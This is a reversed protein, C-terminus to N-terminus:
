VFPLEKSAAGIIEIMENSIWEDINFDRWRSIRSARGICWRNKWYEVLEDMNYDYYVPCSNNDICERLNKVLPIIFVQKKISGDTVGKIGIFDLAKRLKGVREISTMDDSDLRNGTCLEYFKYLMSKVDFPLYHASFGKTYGVPIAVVHDNYKLRNYISSRGFVSINTIFLIDDNYKSNYYRRIKDSLLSLTVMKAGILDNYPPMAGIRFADLSKNLIYTFDPRNYIGLYKNRASVNILPSFLGIIGFLSDHYRDWIVFRLSKGVSKQYPSSWWMLNWWKFLKEYKDDLSTSIVDLDIKEPDLDKGNISYKKVLSINDTIFKFNSKIYNLRIRRSLSVIKKKDTPYKVIDNNVTFGYERLKSLIKHRINNIVDDTCM